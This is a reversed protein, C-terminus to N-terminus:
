YKGEQSGPAPKWFCTVSHFCAMISMRSSGIAETFAEILTRENENSIVIASQKYEPSCYKMM